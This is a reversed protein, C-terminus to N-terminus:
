AKANIYKEKWLRNAWQLATSLGAPSQEGYAYVLWDHRYSRRRIELHREVILAGLGLAWFSKALRYAENKTM